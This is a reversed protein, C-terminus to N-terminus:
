RERAAGEARAATAKGDIRGEASFDDFTVHGWGRTSHDVIRLFVRRGKLGAVDWNVRQMAEGNAGSARRLEKGSALDYLAVYTDRHSGGGVLFSVKPGALVLVPSEVVGTQADKGKGGAARELTTLFLKGQKNYKAGGGLHHFRERGNVLAEFSGEVVRWGQLDGTEFDFRLNGVPKPHDYVVKAPGRQRWGSRRRGPIRDAPTKPVEAQKDFYRAGKGLRDYDGLDDRGKEALKRLQAVAEPHQAAVDHKEGVDAELDYLQTKPVAEIMRASWSTGPPRAPRPLVLKWKGSRVALLRLYAYYYFAECPSKADDEGAMLPWIDKGDIARDDPAKAGALKAFTPLLDMTTALEGCVKGAPIRAPWRMICPVRLGGEWAMMKAGRLPAASGAHDGIQKEIWPGNDSTFVVLTREDLGLEKLADLIQGTSWDIEEIVDGYLGRRSKGRFPESAHLPVHPMNHALYVFFPQGKHQRIFRITEHTYRQTLTSQNAPREIVKDNRRLECVFKSQRVFKTHGNYLPTGYFVDFGQRIPQTALSFQRDALHWKGICATAYGRAKLVEALTVEDPHLQTHPHKRNGPEAVRMPYCGTMIAARSPGCVPQAYFSTFKTGEAAMRDLRPTRILPSGFCGVDNYGQDDTFIVVFNPPREEEGRAWRPLVSAAAACLAGRGVRSLFRRRGVRDPRTAM